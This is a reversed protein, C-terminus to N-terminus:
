EHVIEKSNEVVDLPLIITFSSGNGQQSKVSIEGQMLEVLQKVIALGLGIGGHQRTTTSDVQRFTDFIHPIEEEPIGVGTDRVEMGWHTQNERFLNIQIEGQTTFKASNNVLNILIQQLRDSDGLISKPLAPDIRSSLKLNKDLTIKDMVEHVNEVLKAPEFSAIKIKLKGAEIQAQDLLESVIGLLRQTNSMVRETAVKQKENVPGFVAEKLMEAYGMIANLPTRLEHSVVAVFTSKM